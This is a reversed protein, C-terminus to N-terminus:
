SNSLSVFFNDSAFFSPCTWNRVWSAVFFTSLFSIKQLDCHPRKKLAFVDSIIRAMKSRGSPSISHWRRISLLSPNALHFSPPPPPSFLLRPSFVLVSQHRFLYLRSISSSLSALFYWCNGRKGRADLREYNQAASRRPRCDFCWPRTKWNEGHTERPGPQTSIDSTSILCPGLQWFRNPPPDLCPQEM